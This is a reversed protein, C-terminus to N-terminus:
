YSQRMPQYVGTSNRVHSDLCCATYSDCYFQDFVFMIIILFSIKTRRGFIAPPGLWTTLVPLLELMRLEFLQCFLLLLLLLLVLQTPRHSPGYMAVGFRHTLWTELLGPAVWGHALHSWSQQQECSYDVALSGGLTNGTCLLRCTLSQWPTGGSNNSFQRGNRYISRSYLYTFGNIRLKSAPQDHQQVVGM